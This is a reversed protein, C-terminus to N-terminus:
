QGDAPGVAPEVQAHLVVADAKVQLRGLLLGAGEPKGPHAFAHRQQSTLYVDLSPAVLPRLNVDADGDSRLYHILHRLNTDQQRVVMRQETLADFSQKRG